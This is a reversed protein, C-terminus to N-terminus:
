VQHEVVFAAINSNLGLVQVNNTGARSDDVNNVVIFHNNQIQMPPSTLQDSAADFFTSDSQGTEWVLTGGAITDTTPSSYVRVHRTAAGTNTALLILVTTADAGSTNQYDTDSEDHVSLATGETIDVSSFFGKVTDGNEIGVNVDGSINTGTGTFKPLSQYNDALGDGDDAQVIRAVLLPIMAM